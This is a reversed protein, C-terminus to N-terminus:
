TWFGHLDEYIRTAIYTKVQLFKPYLLLLLFLMVISITVDVLLLCESEENYIECFRKGSLLSATYTIYQILTLLHSVSLSFIETHM